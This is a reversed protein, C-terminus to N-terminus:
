VVSKRDRLRCWFRLRMVSSWISFTIWRLIWQFIGFWYALTIFVILPPSGTLWRELESTAFFKCSSAPAILLFGLPSSLFFSLRPIKPKHFLHSNLRDLPSLWP